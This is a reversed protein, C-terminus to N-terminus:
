APRTWIWWSVMLMTFAVLAIAVPPPARLIAFIALGSAMGIASALKAKLPIARRTRWAVLPPGMRPHTLLWTELRPSSRAFGAAALILFPTTPLLPLVAGVVGLVLAMLGLAFYLLRIPTWPLSPPREHM